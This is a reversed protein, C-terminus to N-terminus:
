GFDCIGVVMEAGGNRWKRVANQRKRVANEGCILRAVATEHKWIVAVAYTKAAFLMSVAAFLGQLRM